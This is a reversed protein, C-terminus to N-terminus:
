RAWRRRRWAGVAGAVMAVGAVVLTGAAVWETVTWPVGPSAAAAAGSGRRSGPLAYLPGGGGAGRGLRACGLRSLAAHAAAYDCMLTAESAAYEDVLLRTEPDALLWTDGPVRGALLARFYSNNFAPAESGGPWATLPLPLPYMDASASSGDLPSSWWRALPHVAALAVASRLSLGARAAWARLGATASPPWAGRSSAPPPPPPTFLRGEPAYAWSDRRGPVFGIPPGGAAEVAVVGALQFLDASSLSPVRAKIPALLHIIRELGANAAHSLEKRTRISGNAGGTGDRADYTLADNFALRIFLPGCRETALLALLDARAAREAAEPGVGILAALTAASM